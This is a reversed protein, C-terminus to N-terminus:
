KPIGENETSLSMIMLILQPDIEAKCATAKKTSRKLQYKEKELANDKSYSDEM